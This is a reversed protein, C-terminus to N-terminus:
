RDGHFGIAEAGAVGPGVISELSLRYPFPGSPAPLPQFHQSAHPPHARVVQEEASGLRVQSRGAGAPGFEGFRAM